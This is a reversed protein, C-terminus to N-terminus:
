GNKEKKAIFPPGQDWDDPLLLPPTENRGTFEIGFMEAAEREYFDAGPITSIISPLKASEIPLKLMLSFGSGSWFNYFVEIDDPQDNRQQVTIASLHCYEFIELIVDIVPKLQNPKILITHDGHIGDYVECHFGTKTEIEICLDKIKLRKM